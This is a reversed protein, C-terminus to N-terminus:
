SFRPSETFKVPKDMSTQLALVKNKEVNAHHQCKNRSEKAFQCKNKGSCETNVNGM